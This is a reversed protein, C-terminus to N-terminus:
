IDAYLCYLLGVCGVIISVLAITLISYLAIKFILDTM